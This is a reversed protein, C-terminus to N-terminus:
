VLSVDSVIGNSVSTSIEVSVPVRSGTATPAVTIMPTTAAIAAKARATTTASKARSPGTCAALVVPVSVALGAALVKFVVRKVAMRGGEGFAFKASKDHM